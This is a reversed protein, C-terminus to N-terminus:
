PRPGHELRCRMHYSRRQIQQGDSRAEQWVPDKTIRITQGCTACDRPYNEWTVHSGKAM